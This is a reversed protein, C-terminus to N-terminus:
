KRQKTLFFLFFFLLLVFRGEEMIVDRTSAGVSLRVSGRITVRVCPSVWPHVSPCVCQGEWLYAVVCWFIFVFRMSMLFITKDRALFWLVTFFSFFFIFFSQKSVADRFRICTEKGWYLWSSGVDSILNADKWPAGCVDEFMEVWRWKITYLYAWGKKGLRRDQTEYRRTRARM